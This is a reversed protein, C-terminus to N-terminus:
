DTSEHDDQLENLPVRIPRAAPAVPSCSWNPGGWFRRPRRTHLDGRTDGSHRSRVVPFERIGPAQARNESAVDGADALTSTPVGLRAHVGSGSFERVSSRLCPRTWEAGRCYPTPVAKQTADGLAQGRLRGRVSIAPDGYSTRSGRASSTTFGHTLYCLAYGTAWGFGTADARRWASTRRFVTTFQDDQAVCRKSAWSRPVPNPQPLSRRPAPIPRPTWRCTLRLVGPPAPSDHGNM